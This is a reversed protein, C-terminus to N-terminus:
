QESGQIDHRGHEGRLSVFLPVKETPHTTRNASALYPSFNLASTGCADAPM